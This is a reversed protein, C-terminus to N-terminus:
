SKLVCVIVHIMAQVCFVERALLSDHFGHVFYSCFLSALSSLGVLALISFGFLLVTYM